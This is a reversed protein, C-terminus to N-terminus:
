KRGLLYARTESWGKAVQANTMASMETINRQMEAIYDTFPIVRDLRWGNTNYERAEGAIAAAEDGDKALIFDGTIGGDEPDVYQGEVLFKHNIDNAM